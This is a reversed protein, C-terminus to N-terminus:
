SLSLLHRMQPAPKYEDNGAEEAHLTHKAPRYKDSVAVEALRCSAKDSQEM